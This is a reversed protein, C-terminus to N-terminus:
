KRDRQNRNLWHAKNPLNYMLYGVVGFGAAASVIGIWIHAHM